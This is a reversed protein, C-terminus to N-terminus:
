LLKSAQIRLDIAIHHSPYEACTTRVKVKVSAYHPALQKFLALM